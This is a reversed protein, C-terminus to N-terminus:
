DLGSTPPSFRLFAFEADLQAGEGRGGGPWVRLQHRSAIDRPSKVSIDRLCCVGRGAAAEAGPGFDALPTCLLERDLLAGRRQRRRAVPLGSSAAPPDFFHHIHDLGALMLVTNDEHHLHLFYCFPHIWKRKSPLIWWYFTRM